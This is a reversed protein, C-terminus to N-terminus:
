NSREDYVSQEKWPTPREIYTGGLQAVFQKYSDAEQRTLLKAHRVQTSEVWGQDGGKVAYRTEDGGMYRSCLFLEPQFM